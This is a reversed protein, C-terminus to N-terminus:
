LEDFDVSKIELSAINENTLASKVSAEFEGKERASCTVLDIHITTLEPWSHIVLHSESLVLVLTTGKPHFDHQVKKVVNLDLDSVINTALEEIFLPDETMTKLRVLAVFHNIIPTSKDM